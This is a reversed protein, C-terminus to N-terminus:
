LINIITHYLVNLLLLLITQVFDHLDDGGGDMLIVILRLFLSVLCILGIIRLLSGLIEDFRCRISFVLCSIMIM